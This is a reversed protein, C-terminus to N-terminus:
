DLLLNAFESLDSRYFIDVVQSTYTCKLKSKLNNLYFEVTRPSINIIKGIEKATKGRSLYILCEIERKSIAEHSYADGLYYKHTATADIFKKYQDRALENAMEMKIYEDYSSVESRQVALKALDSTDILDPANQKFYYIFKKLYELNNIYTNVVNPNEKKTAFYTVELYDNEKRTLNIGHWINYDYLASLCGGLDNQTPWLFWLYPSQPKLADAFLSFKQGGYISSAQDVLNNEFYAKIWPIDHSLALYTGDQFFKMYGFHTIGLYNLPKCLASFREAVAYNYDFASSNAKDFPPM